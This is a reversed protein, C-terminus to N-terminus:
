KILFERELKIIDFLVEITKLVDGEIDLGHNADTINVLKIGKVDEIKNLSEESLLPDKTGTIVLSDECVGHHATKDIPSIYINKVKKDKFHRNLMVQVCTGISKGIIVINEYDKSIANEIAEITEKAMQHFETPIDFKTRNIHFGYEIAMVDYGLENALQRSYDLYSRDILYAVGSLVICLTTSNNDKFMPNLEVGWKSMVKTTEM